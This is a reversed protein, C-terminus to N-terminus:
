SLKPRLQDISDLIAAHLLSGDGSIPSHLIRRETELYQCPTLSLTAFRDDPECNFETIPERISMAHDKQHITVAKHNSRAKRGNTEIPWGRLSFFPAWEWLGPNDTAIGIPLWILGLIFFLRYDTKPMEGKQRYVFFM